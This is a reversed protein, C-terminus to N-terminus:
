RSRKNWGYMRLSLSRKFPVKPQPANRAKRELEEIEKKERLLAYKENLNPEGFAEEMRKRDMEEVLREEEPDALRAQTLATDSRLNALMEMARKTYHDALEATNM